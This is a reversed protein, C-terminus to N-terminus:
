IINYQAENCSTSMARFSLCRERVFRGDKLESSMLSTGCAKTLSMCCHQCLTDGQSRFAVACRSQAEGHSQTYSEFKHICMDVM